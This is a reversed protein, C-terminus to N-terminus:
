LVCPSKLVQHCSILLPATAGIIFILSYLSFNNNFVSVGYSILTTCLFLSLILKLNISVHRIQCFFAGLITQSIFTGTGAFLVLQFNLDTFFTNIIAAILIGIWYFLITIHVRSRYFAYQLSAIAINIVITITYFTLLTTVANSM